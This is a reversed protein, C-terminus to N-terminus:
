LVSTPSSWFWCEECCRGGSCLKFLAANMVYLYMTKHMSSSNVIYIVFATLPYLLFTNLFDTMKVKRELNFIPTPQTDETYFLLAYTFHSIPLMYVKSDQRHYM